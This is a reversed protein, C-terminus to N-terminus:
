GADSALFDIVEPLARPDQTLFLHGGEYRRLEAGAIRTAIAESNAVPAVGDYRGCGVLTPCTIRGLRDLM